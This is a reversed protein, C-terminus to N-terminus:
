AAQETDILLFMHDCRLAKTSNEDIAPLASASGTSAHTRVQM